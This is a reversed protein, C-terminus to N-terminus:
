RQEASELWKQWDTLSRPSNQKQKQEDFSLSDDEDDESNVLQIVGWVAVASILLGWRKMREETKEEEEADDDQDAVRQQWSQGPVGADHFGVSTACGSLLALCLFPAVLRKM